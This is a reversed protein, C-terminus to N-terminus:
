KIVKFFKDWDDMSKKSIEIGSTYKEGITFTFNCLDCNIFKAKIARMRVAVADRFNCQVFPAMYARARSLDAFSFNCNYVREMRIMKVKLLSANYFVVNEILRGSLDASDLIGDSLNLNNINYNEVIDKLTERNKIKRKIEERLSDTLIKLEKM